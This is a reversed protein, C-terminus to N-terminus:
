PRLQDRGDAAAEIGRPQVAATGSTQLRVLRVPRLSEVGRGVVADGHSRADREGVHADADVLVCADTYDLGPTSDVLRQAADAQAQRWGAAALRRAEDAPIDRAAPEEPRFDDSTADHTRHDAVGVLSFMMTEGSGDDAVCDHGHLVANATM